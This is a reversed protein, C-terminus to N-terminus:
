RIKLTKPSIKLFVGEKNDLQALSVDFELRTCLRASDRSSAGCGNIKEVATQVDNKKVNTM